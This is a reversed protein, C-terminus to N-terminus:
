SSVVKGTDAKGQYKAKGHSWPVYRHKIMHKLQRKMTIVFLIIFYMVLIPWFVPINLADFFTCITAIVVAKTGSYWFKFEPLRRMFPRFEDSTRTPLQPGEDDSDAGGAVPEIKPTLFGIFLNLLYIGLAYTVIYWGQLFYVRIFYFVTLLLTFAWRLPLHPTSKDLLTQYTINLRRFFTVVPNNPPGKDGPSSDM